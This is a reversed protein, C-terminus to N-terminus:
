GFHREYIKLLWDMRGASIWITDGHRVKCGEVMERVFKNEADRLDKTDVLGELKEMMVRASVTTTM